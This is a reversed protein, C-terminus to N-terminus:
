EALLADSTPVSTQLLLVHQLLIDTCPDSTRTFPFSLVLLSYTPLFHFLVRRVHKQPKLIPIRTIDVLAWLCILIQSKGAWKLISKCIIQLQFRLTSKMIRAIYNGVRSSHTLWSSLNGLLVCPLYCTSTYYRRASSLFQTQAGELSNHQNEVSLAWWRSGSM